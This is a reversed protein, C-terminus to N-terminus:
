SDSAELIISGYRAEFTRIIVVEAHIRRGSSFCFLEISPLLGGHFDTVDVTVSQQVSAGFGSSSSRSEVEGGLM